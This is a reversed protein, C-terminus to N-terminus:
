RPSLITDFMFAFLLLAANGFVGLERYRGPRVASAVLALLSAAFPAGALLMVVKGALDRTEHSWHEGLVMLLYAVAVYLWGAAAAFLVPGARPPRDWPNRRVGLATGAAPGALLLWPARFAFCEVERLLFSAIFMAGLIWEYPVRRPLAM